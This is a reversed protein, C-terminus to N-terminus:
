QSEIEQIYDEYEYFAEDNGELLCIVCYSIIATWRRVLIVQEEPLIGKLMGDNETWMNSYHIIGNINALLERDIESKQFEDKLENLCEMIEIFNDIFLKGRYPRLMGLYGNKWKDNDIDPNRGSHYSLRNLIDVKEM